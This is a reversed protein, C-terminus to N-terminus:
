KPLIFYFNNGMPTSEYGVRGGHLEVVEKVFHLGHGTGREGGVNAGRDGEDFTRNYDRTDLPRGTSFLNIKIGDQHPGFVDPVYEQGYAIFKRTFGGYNIPRAYKVANSVYNAFVQSILGVDVVAEVPQDPVGGASLDIEINREELRYRFRDVQPEIIDRRFNCMKKQLVYQGKEFHSQRLLTELFLSTNYYHKQIHDFEEALGENAYALDASMERIASPLAQPLKEPLKALQSQIEKIRKIKGGLRRLYAKFFINPVIVNHGIDAVLNKIFNIHQQNKHYLLRRIMSLSLLEAYKRILAVDDIELASEPSVGFMGVVSNLNLENPLLTSPRYELPVLYEDGEQIPETSLPVTIRLGDRRKDMLDTKTSAVLVAAGGFEDMYLSTNWGLVVKPLYVAALNFDDLDGIELTLDMFLVTISDMAKSQRFNIHDALHQRIRKEISGTTEM